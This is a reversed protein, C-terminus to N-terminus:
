GTMMSGTGKEEATLFKANDQVVCQGKGRMNFVDGPNSKKVKTFDGSEAWRGLVATFDQDM